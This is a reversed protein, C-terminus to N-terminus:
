DNLDLDSWLKEIPNIVLKNEKKLQEYEYISQLDLEDELKEMALRKIASSISCGYMKSAEEFILREEKNLRITVTEAM